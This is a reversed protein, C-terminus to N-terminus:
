RVYIVFGSPPIALYRFTGDGDTYAPDDTVKPGVAVSSPHAALFAESIDASAFKSASWASLTGTRALEDIQADSIGSWLAIRGGGGAAGRNAPNNDDHGFGGRATFLATSAIELGKATTLWIGGGSSYRGGNANLTGAITAKHAHIRILGGAPQVYGYSGGSSGPLIPAYENGYTLGYTETHNGGYGGYGGGITH